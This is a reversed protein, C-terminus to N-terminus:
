MTFPWAVDALGGAHVGGRMKIMKLVGARHVSAFQIPGGYLDVSQLAKLPGQSPLRKPQTRVEDMSPPQHLSLTDVAMITADSTARAPDNLAENISAVAMSHFEIAMRRARPPLNGNCFYERVYQSLMNAQYLGSDAITNAMWASSKRSGGNKEAPYVLQWWESV